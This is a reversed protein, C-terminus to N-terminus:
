AEGQEDWYNTSAAALAAVEGLTEAMFENATDMSALVGVVGAYIATPSNGAYQVAATLGDLAAGLSAAAYATSLENSYQDWVSDLVFLSDIEDMPAYSAGSYYGSSKAAVDRAAPGFKCVGKSDMRQLWAHTLNGKAAAPVVIHGVMIDCLERRTVRKGGKEARKARIRAHLEALGANHRNGLSNPNEMSRQFAVLPTLREASDVPMPATLGPRDACAAVVLAAAPLLLLLALSKQM